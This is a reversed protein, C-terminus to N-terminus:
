PLHHRGNGVAPEDESVDGVSSQGRWVGTSGTARNSFCTWCDLRHCYAVGEVADAMCSRYCGLEWAAQVAALALGHLAFPLAPSICRGEAMDAM